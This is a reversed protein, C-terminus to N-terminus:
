PNPPDYLSDISVSHITWTYQYPHTDLLRYFYLIQIHTHMHMNSCISRQITNDNGSLIIRLYFSHWKKKLKELFYASMNGQFCLFRQDPHFPKFINWTSHVPAVISYLFENNGPLIVYKCLYIYVHLQMICIPAGYPPM